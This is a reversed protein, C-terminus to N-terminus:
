VRREASLRFLAQAAEGLGAFRADRTQGRRFRFYIQQLVVAMKFAGFVIYYDVNSLDRGSKEGYRAAAEARAMFGPAQTPMASTGQIRDESDNWVGLVTGLDCFPDGLTCMDWDYVAVCRGPDDEAVAMNDLRWDNHLLTAPPSEPRNDLLWSRVEEAIPVDETRAREYRGAWGTVQRELFGAPKGIGGLGIPEPDVAHFEALVDIVVESLKRNATPDQGGGFEPPIVGRVVVGRRREMVFFPAGILSEDECLVYARPAKDFGQWLKSLARYERAMDHAGPAVPGLPPRRLVYEVAADGAGFTVLYTLNAHGGGFQRVTMPADAGPLVDRLFEAVRAEDFREDSRVDITEPAPKLGDDDAM